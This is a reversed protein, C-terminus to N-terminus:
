QVPNVVRGLFLISGSRNDRIVFVFPHDARFVPVPPPLSRSVLVATAAAAETGEENVQVFAEHLVAGIFLSTTGDIGSFDAAEFADVMGMSKLTDNLGFPFRIKFRPLFVRVTMPRLQQTWRSLNETTLQAELQALGDIEQPLLIIMSVDNGAYPLALIQLGDAAAYSFEHEQTMMPTQIAEGPSTWFPADRTLDPDFQSAWDGKFYIANVLVLTTSPDLLREPILDKIKQETQQEVWTNITRRATEPERYDVATILVGYHQRTLTLFTELLPYGQQPWLANAVKFRVQGKEAIDRLEAEMSAFAPHLRHPELHFHLAQAMQTATNGRAGAYTMALATSISYPSFFLNGPEVQLKQYLALAFQTNGEVLAELDHPRRIQVGQSFRKM